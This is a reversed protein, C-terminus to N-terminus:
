RRLLKVVEQGNFNKIFLRAPFVFLLVLWCCNGLKLGSNGLIFLLTSSNELSVLLISRKFYKYQSKMQQTRYTQIIKVAVLKSMEEDM